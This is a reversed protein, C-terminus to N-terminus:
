KKDINIFIDENGQRTDTWANVIIGGQAAISIHEGLNSGDRNTNSRSDNSQASTIFKSKGFNIAGSNSISKSSMTSVDVTEFNFNRSTDYFSLNLTGDNDLALVPHFQDALGRDTNARQPKHWNLGGNTSSTVFIDFGTRIDTYAAYVVGDQKKDAVLSLNPGVAQDPMATLTRGFGIDTKAIETPTSFNVGDQSSAIMLRGGRNILSSGFGWDSWGVYVDGNHGITVAPDAVKGNALVIPAANFEHGRGVMALISFNGSAASFSDWSIVTRGNNDTALAPRSIFNRAEASNLALIRNDSFNVGDVSHTEVLANAANNLSALTYVVMLEGNQNFSVVPSQGLFFQNGGANRSLTASQWSEGGDQSSKVVVNHNFLDTAAVAIRNPNNADIAVSPTSQAGNGDILSFDARAMAQATDGPLVPHKYQRLMEESVVVELRGLPVLSKLDRGGTTAVTSTATGFLDVLFNFPQRSGLGIVFTTNITGNVTLATANTSQRDGITGARNDATILLDPKGPAQDPGIKSLDVIQFYIPANIRTGTNTILTNITFNGVFNPDTISVFSTSLVDLTISTTVVGVINFSTASIGSNGSQGVVTIPGTITGAPVTAIITNDNVITVNTALGANAFRVGRANTFGSGNITVTDGIQGSTPSFSSVVVQGPQTQVVTFSTRTGAVGSPTTVTISGTTAGTPVAVTISASTNVTFGPANTGNFKVSTTGTFNSGLITVSTGASGSTPSFSSIIPRQAYATGASLFETPFFLSLALLFVAALFNKM